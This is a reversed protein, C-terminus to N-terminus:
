ARSELRRRREGIQKQHHLTHMRHFRLWQAVTFPGLIPHNMVRGTGLRAATAAAAGDLAQLHARVNQMVDPLSIRGTPVVHAPAEIGRPFFGLTVVAFVRLRSTMTPASARPAGAELCREFGKVTGSYARDLHEVIEAVSWRGDVRTSASAQDLGATAEELLTLCRQLEPHM